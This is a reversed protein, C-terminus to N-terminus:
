GRELSLLSCLHSFMITFLLGLNLIKLALKFNGQASGFNCRSQTGLSVFSKFALLHLLLSLVGMSLLRQMVSQEM